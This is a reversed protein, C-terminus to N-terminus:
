PVADLSYTAQEYNWTNHIQIDSTLKRHKYLEIRYSQGYSIVSTIESHCSPSAYLRRERISLEECGNELTM